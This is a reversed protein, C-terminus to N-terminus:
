LPIIGNPLCAPCCRPKTENIFQCHGDPISGHRCKRCFPEGIHDPQEIRDCNECCEIFSVDKAMYTTPESIIM